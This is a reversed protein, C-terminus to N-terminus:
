NLPHSACSPQQLPYILGAFCGAIEALLTKYEEGWGTVIAKMFRQLYYNPLAFSLRRLNGWHHYKEFLRLLAAVHGRMYQFAQQNLSELDARHYHFVVATPDYYCHGGSELIRYWLESDESCGSAGAGLSEDFLGVQYFVEKRFAMNAGAGILWSPVGRSKMNEFFKVDFTKARYDWDPGGFHYQFLCQAEHDLEAPLMLGTTAMVKTDAFGHQIQRLWHPHVVVDDDTFAILTGTAHRIGTNRAISLGPKPECLYQVKPFTAVCTRTADTQPANDVVIIEHPLESLSQISKLCRALADPRDRTCIIVSISETQNPIVRQTMETLPSQAALFTSMVPFRPDPPPTQADYVMPLHAQFGQPFLRDGIPSSIYKLVIEALATPSLPLQASTLHLHNLPIGQWWLGLRIGTYGPIPELTPLPDTNLDLHLIKWPAKMM